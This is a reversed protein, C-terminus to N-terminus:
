WWMRRAQSMSQKCGLTSLALSERGFIAFQARGLQEL